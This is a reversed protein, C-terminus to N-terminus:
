CPPGPSAWSPKATCRNKAGCATPRSCRAALAITLDHKTKFKDQAAVADASVGV